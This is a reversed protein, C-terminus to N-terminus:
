HFLLLFFCSVLQLPLALLLRLGSSESLSGVEPKTRKQQQNTKVDAGLLQTCILAEMVM